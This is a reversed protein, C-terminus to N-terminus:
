KEFLLESSIKSDIYWIICSVSGWRKLGKNYTTKYLKQSIMLLSAKLVTNKEIVCDFLSKLWKEAIINDTYKSLLFRRIKITLRFITM